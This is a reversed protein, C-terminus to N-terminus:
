PRERGASRVRDPEPDLWMVLARIRWDRNRSKLVALYHGVEDGTRGPKCRCFYDGFLYAMNGSTAYDFVSLQIDRAKALLSAFRQALAGRGHVPEENPLMLLGEEVFADLVGEVDDERWASRFSGLRSDIRYFAELARRFRECRRSQSGQVCGYADRLADRTLPQLAAGGISWRSRRSSVDPLFVQARIRWATGEGMIVTIHYGFVDELVGAADEFRFRGFDLVMQESADLLLMSAAVQGSALAPAIHRHIEERGLLTGGGAPVLIANESYAEAVAAHDSARWAAQWARQLSDVHGVINGLYEARLEDPTRRDPVPVQAPSFRGLLCLWAAVLLTPHRM